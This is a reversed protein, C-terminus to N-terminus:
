RVLRNALKNIKKFGRKYIVGRDKEEKVGMWIETEVTLYTCYISYNSHLEFLYAVVGILSPHFHM